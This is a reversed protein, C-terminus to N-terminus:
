LCFYNEIQGKQKSNALTNDSLFTTPFVATIYLHGTNTFTCKVSTHM